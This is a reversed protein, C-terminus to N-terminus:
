VAFFPRKSQRPEQRAVRPRHATEFLAKQVDLGKWRVAALHQANEPGLVPVPHSGAFSYYSYAEEQQDNRHGLV